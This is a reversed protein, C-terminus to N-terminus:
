YFGFVGIVDDTKNSMNGHVAIFLRDSKNGWLIASIDKIKFEQKIM